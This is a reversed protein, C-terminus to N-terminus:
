KPNEPHIPGIQLRSGEVCWREPHERGQMLFRAAGGALLSHLFLLAAVRGLESISYAM